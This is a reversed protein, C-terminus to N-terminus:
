IPITKGQKDERRAKAAMKGFAQQLAGTKADEEMEMDWLDAACNELRRKLSPPIQHTQTFRFIANVMKGCNRALHTRERKQTTDSVPECPTIPSKAARKKLKAVVIEM